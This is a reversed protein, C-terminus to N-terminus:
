DATIRVVRCFFFARGENAGLDVVLALGHHVLSNVQLPRLLLQGDASFRRIQGCRM